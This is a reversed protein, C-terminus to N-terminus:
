TTLRSLFTAPITLGLAETTKPNILLEFKTPQEAVLGALKTGKMIADAYAADRHVNSRISLGYCM